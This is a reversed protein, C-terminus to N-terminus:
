TGLVRQFWCTLQEKSMEGSAVALTVREADEEDPLRTVGNALLFLIAASLAVRKNGDAFGHNNALHFLYAAALAALDTHLYQGGVAQQPMAVASEILGIDRIGSRGGEHDLTDQHIDLVDQLSLFCIRSDNM